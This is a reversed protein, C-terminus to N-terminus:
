PIVQGPAMTYGAEFVAKPSWSIYGAYKPHNSAGGDLYEVLYGEDDGNEDAPLVWSRLDNYVQRTMPSAKVHKHCVYLKAETSM